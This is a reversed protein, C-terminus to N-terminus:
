IAEKAQADRLELLVSLSFMLTEGNDGDGGHKWQFYDGGFAWDSEKLMAFMREAEPHHPVGDEWRRDVQVGLRECEVRLADVKPDLVEISRDTTSM